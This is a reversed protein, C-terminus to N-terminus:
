SLKMYFVSMMINEEEVENNKKQNEESAKTSKTIKKVILNLFHALYGIHHFDSVTSESNRFSDLLFGKLNKMNSANDTVISVLKNLIGWDRLVEFLANALNESTHSGPLNCIELTRSYLESMENFFHCTIGLYSYRQISTWGDLTVSVAQEQLLEHQIREPLIQTTLRYRTPIIFSPNLTQVFDPQESESDLSHDSEINAERCPSIGHDNKLHNRMGTTSKNYYSANCHNCHRMDGLLTSHNYIISNKGYEKRKRTNNITKPTLQCNSIEQNIYKFNVLTFFTLKS